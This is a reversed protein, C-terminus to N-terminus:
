QAQAKKDEPSQDPAAKADDPMHTLGIFIEVGDSQAEPTLCDAWTAWDKAKRAQQAAKLVEAPTAYKKAAAQTSAPPEALVPTPLYLLCGVLLLLGCLRM